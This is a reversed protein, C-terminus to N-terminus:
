VNVPIALLTSAMRVIAAAAILATCASQGMLEPHCTGVCVELHREVSAVALVVM